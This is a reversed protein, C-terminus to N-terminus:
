AVFYASAHLQLRSRPEFGSGAISFASSSSFVPLVIWGDFRQGTNYAPVVPEIEALRTWHDTGSDVAGRLEVYARDLDITRAESPHWLSLLFRVEDYGASDIGSEGDRALTFAFSGSSDTAFIEPPSDYVVHLPPTSAAM